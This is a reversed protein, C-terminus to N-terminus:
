GGKDTEVMAKGVIFQIQPRHILIFLTIIKKLVTCIALISYVESLAFPICIPLTSHPKTSLTMIRFANHVLNQRNGWM